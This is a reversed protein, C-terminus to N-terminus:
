RDAHRRHISERVLPDVQGSADAPSGAGVAVFSLPGDSRPPLHRDIAERVVETVPVARRQAELRLRAEIDDPLSITRRKM